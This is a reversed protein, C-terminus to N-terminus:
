EQIEKNYMYLQYSNNIVFLSIIGCLILGNIQNQNSIIGFTLIVTIIIKVPLFLNFKMLVRPIPNAEYGGLTLIKRTTLVDLINLIIFCLALFMNM